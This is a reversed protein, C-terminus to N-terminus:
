NRVFVVPWTPQDLRKWTRTLYDYLRTGSWWVPIQYELVVADIHQSDLEAAITHDGEVGMIRSGNPSFAYVANTSCRYIASDNDFFFTRVGSQRLRECLEHEEVAFRGNSRTVYHTASWVAAM